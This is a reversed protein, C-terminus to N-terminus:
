ANEYTLGELSLEKDKYSQLYKNMRDLVGSNRLSKFVLNDFSFEDGTMLASKRMDKLKDKIKKFEKVPSKTKIMDDIMDIYSKVKSNLADDHKFDYSGKVPKKVWHNNLLSYVGAAVLNDNSDQAYMEVSYGKVKIHTTLTWLTKKDKFHDDLLKDNLRFLKRDYVIHVDIDSYKTYNYQANGGTFIIDKVFSKPISAFDMWAFANKLLIHRVDPKLVEGDFLKPNLKKHYQLYVKLFSDM